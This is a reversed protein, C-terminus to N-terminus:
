MFSTTVPKNREKSARCATKRRYSLSLRTCKERQLRRTLKESCMGNSQAMYKGNHVTVAPLLAPLQKTVINNNQCVLKGNVSHTQMTVASREMLDGVPLEIGEKCKKGLANKNANARLRNEATGWAKQVYSDLIERSNQVQNLSSVDDKV